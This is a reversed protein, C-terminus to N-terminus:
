EAMVALRREQEHADAAEALMTSILQSSALMLPTSGEMDKMDLAANAEILLKVAAECGRMAATHLPTQGNSQQVNPMAGRELLLKTVRARDWLAACHLPTVGMNNRAAVSAGEDLLFRAVDLHGGQVARHLPQFGIRGRQSPSCGHEQVLMRVIDLRGNYCAVHLADNGDEDVDTIKAGGEVMRRVKELDGRRVADTLHQQIGLADQTAAIVSEM